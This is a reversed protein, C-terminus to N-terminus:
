RKSVRFDTMRDIGSFGTLWEAQVTDGGTSTDFVRVSGDRTGTIVHRSDQCWVVSSVDSLHGRLEKVQTGQALDWIRVKRDEGASAMQKGDPSMAVSTM